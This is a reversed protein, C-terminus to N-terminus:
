KRFGEEEAWKEVQERGAQVLRCIEELDMGAKRLNGAIKKKTNWEGQRFGQEIGKEWIGQSLNCMERIEGEEKSELFFDFEDRLITKKEEPTREESLLVELFRLLGGYRKTETRGLCVIVVCLLDYNQLNAKENGVIHNEEMSYRNITNRFRVTPDTCLWISYVKKLKGYDAGTFETGYQSSIMRCCYYIGRKLLPYGPDFRNQAEVNVILGIQAKEKSLSVLFRIDYRVTGELLSVDETNLGRIREGANKKEYTETISPGTKGNGPAEGVQVRGEILTEIEERTCGKFEEACEKM